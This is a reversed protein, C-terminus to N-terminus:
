SLSLVCKPYPNTNCDFWALDLAHGQLLIASLMNKSFDPCTFDDGVSYLTPLGTTLNKTLCWFAFVGRGM